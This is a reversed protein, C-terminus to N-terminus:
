LTVSESTKRWSDPYLRDMKQELKAMATILTEDKRLKWSTSEFVHDSTGCEGCGSIEIHGGSPFISVNVHYGNFLSRLEKEVGM